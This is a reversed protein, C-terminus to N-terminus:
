ALLSCAWEHEDTVNGDGLIKGVLAPESAEGLFVVDAPNVELILGEGPPNVEAGGVGIDLDTTEHAVDGKSGWVVVASQLRM